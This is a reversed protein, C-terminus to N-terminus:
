GLTGVCSDGLTTNCEGYVGAWGIEDLGDHLGGGPGATEVSSHGVGTWVGNWAVGQCSSKVPAGEGLTPSKGQSGDGSGGGLRGACSGMAWQVRDEGHSPGKVLTDSVLHGRCFGNPGSNRWDAECTEATGHRSCLNHSKCTESM